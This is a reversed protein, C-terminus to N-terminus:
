PGQIEPGSIEPSQIELHPQAQDALLYTSVVRVADQAWASLDAHVQTPTVAALTLTLTTLVARTRKLAAGARQRRAAKETAVRIDTRFEAALACVEDRLDRLRSEAENFLELQSRRFHFGTMRAVAERAVDVLEAAAEGDLGVQTVADALTEDLFRTFDERAAIV